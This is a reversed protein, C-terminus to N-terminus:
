DRDRLPRAEFCFFLTKMPLVPHSAFQYQAQSGTGRHHQEIRGNLLNPRLVVRYQGAGDTGVGFAVHFTDDDGGPLGVRDGLDAHGGIRLAAIAKRIVAEVGTVVGDADTRDAVIDAGRGLRHHFGLGSGRGVDLEPLGSIQGALEGVGLPHHANGAGFLLLRHQEIADATVRYLADHARRVIGILPRLDNGAHHTIAGHALRDLRLGHQVPGARACRLLVALHGVIERGDIQARDVMPGVLQLRQRSWLAPVGASDDGLVVHHPRGGLRVVNQDILFAVDPIRVEALHEDSFEIRLRELEGFIRDPFELILRRGSSRLRSKSWAPLIQNSM